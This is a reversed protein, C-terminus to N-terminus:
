SFSANTLHIGIVGAVVLLLSVIKRLSISEKFMFVGIIAVFVTGVGSWVAYVISLDIGKIALTLAFFSFFYFIVLSVSPKLKKLGESLKMSVTGLVGFFIAILLCIWSDSLMM